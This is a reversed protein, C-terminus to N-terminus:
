GRRLCSNVIRYNRGGITQTRAHSFLPPNLWDTGQFDYYGGIVSQGHLDTFRVTGSDGAAGRTAANDVVTHLTGASLMATDDAVKGMATDYILRHQADVAVVDSGRDLEPNLLEVLLTPNLDGIVVGQPHGVSDLVPEQITWRLHGNVEVLADLVPESPM